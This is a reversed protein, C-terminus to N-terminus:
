GKDVEPEGREIVEELAKIACRYMAVRNTNEQGTQIYIDVDNKFRKLAEENTM